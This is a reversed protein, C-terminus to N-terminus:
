VSGDKDTRRTWKDKELRRQRDKQDMQGQRSTKTRGEQGQRTTKTRGEPDNTRTEYEKYTRRTWKDKDLRRQGDKPNM